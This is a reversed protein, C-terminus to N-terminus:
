GSGRELEKALIEVEDEAEITQVAETLTKPGPHLKVGGPPTVRGEVIAMPATAVKEAIQGVKDMGKSVSSGVEALQSSIGQGAEKMLEGLGTTREEDKENELTAIKDQLRAKEAGHLEEKIKELTSGFSEKLAIIQGEYKGALEQKEERSKEIVEELTSRLGEYSSRLDESLKELNDSKGGSAKSMVDMLAGVLAVTDKMPGLPDEKRRSPREEEGEDYGGIPRRGVPPYYPPYYPPYGSYGGGGYMLPPYGGPSGGMQLGGIAMGEPYGGDSATFENIMMPITQHFKRPLKATLLYHLNVPNGKYGPHLQFISLLQNRILKDVGHVDLITALRRVPDEPLGGEGIIPIDNVEVGPASITEKPFGGGEKFEKKQELFETKEEEHLFEERPPCEEGRHQTSWHGRFKRWSSYPKEPHTPCLYVKM